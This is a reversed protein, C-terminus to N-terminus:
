KRSASSISGRGATRTTTRISANSSVSGFRVQWSIEGFVDWNNPAVKKATIVAGYRGTQVSGDSFLYGAITNITVGSAVQLTVPANTCQRFTIESSIPLNLATDNPIQITCGSGNVCRVYSAINDLTLAYTPNAAERLAQSPYVVPTAWGMDYDTDSFKYLYQGAEGGVPITNSPNTLLLGYYFHGAGDNAYPDFPTVSIHNFLVMYTGGNITVVDNVNYLTNTTWAGRFNWAM